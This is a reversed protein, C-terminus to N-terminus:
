IAFKYICIGSLARSTGNGTGGRACVGMRGGEEWRENMEMISLMCMTCRGGERWAGMLGFVDM